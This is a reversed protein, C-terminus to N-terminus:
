LWGAHGTFDSSRRSAASSLMGLGQAAELRLSDDVERDLRLNAGTRMRRKPRASLM